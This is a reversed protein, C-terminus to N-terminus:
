ELSKLRTPFLAAPVGLDIGANTTRVPVAMLSQGPTLYFLERGDWSWYPELGGATSVQRKVGPGPFAQVYVEYTASENSAYALWHGDPSAVGYREDSPSELVPFPEPAGQLPLAWLDGSNQPHTISYVLFRGDRSWSSPIKPFDTRLLLNENGADGAGLTFLN